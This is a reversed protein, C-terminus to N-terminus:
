DGECTPHITVSRSVLAEHLPESCIVCVTDNRFLSDHTAPTANNAVTADNAVSLENSIATDNAAFRGRGTRQIRGSKVLRGAYTRAKHESIDFEDAIDKISLEANSATVLAVIEASLDGLSADHSRRVIDQVTLSSDGILRARGVEAIDGDDTVVPVTEIAFAFSPSDPLYNSKDVSLIRDNTEDDIALLLVSRATDRFAHSGSLKESANGQGKNFHMVLIVAIDLENALSAIPDLNRRVDGAKISDGDMISLVPDIILVRIGFEVLQEKLTVLDSSISPLSRWSNGADDTTEVTSFNHVLDLNAGAAILRPVLTTETDDEAAIFAVAVPQGQFDGGFEGNTLGATIWALITSKGIGGIGAFITLVRLPILPRYAWQQRRTKVQSLPQVLLRRDTM